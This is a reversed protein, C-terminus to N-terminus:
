LNFQSHKHGRLHTKVGTSVQTQVLVSWLTTVQKRNPVGTCLRETCQTEALITDLVVNLTSEPKLHTITKDQQSQYSTKKTSTPRLPCSLQITTKKKKKKHYNTGLHKSQMQLQNVCHRTCLTTETTEPKRSSLLNPVRHCVSGRREQNLKMAVAVKTKKWSHITRRSVPVLQKVTAAAKIPLLAMKQTFIVRTDLSSANPPFM